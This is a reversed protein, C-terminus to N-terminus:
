RSVRPPIGPPAPTRRGRSPLRRTHRRWWGDSRGRTAAAVAVPYNLGNRRRLRVSCLVLVSGFLAVSAPEPFGEVVGLASIRLKDLRTRIEHVQPVAQQLLAADAQLCGFFALVLALPWLLSPKMKM